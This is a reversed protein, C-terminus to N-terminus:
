SRAGSRASRRGRGHQQQSFKWEERTLEPRGDAIWWYWEARTERARRLETLLARLTRERQEKQEKQWDSASRSIQDASRM